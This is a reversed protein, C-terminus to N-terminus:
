FVQIRFNLLFTSLLFSILQALLSFEIFLERNLTLLRSNFICTRKVFVLLSQSKSNISWSLYHGSFFNILLHSFGFLLRSSTLYQVFFKFFVSVILSHLRSVWECSSDYWIIQLLLSFFFQKFLTFYDFGAPKVLLNSIELRQLKLSESIPKYLRLPWTLYVSSSSKSVISHRCYYQGTNCQAVEDSGGKSYVKLILCKCIWIVFM